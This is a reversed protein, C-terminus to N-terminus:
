EVQAKLKLLVSEARATYEKKLSNAVDLQIKANKAGNTAVGANEAASTITGQFARDAFSKVLGAVAERSPNM